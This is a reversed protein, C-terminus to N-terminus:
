EKAASSRARSGIQFASTSVLFCNTISDKNGVFEQRPQGLTKRLLNDHVKKNWLVSFQVIKVIKNTKVAVNVKHNM